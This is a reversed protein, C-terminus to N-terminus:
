GDNLEEVTIRYRKGEELKFIEGLTFQHHGAELDVSPRVFYDVRVFCSCGQDFHVRETEEFALVVSQVGRDFAARPPKSEDSVDM